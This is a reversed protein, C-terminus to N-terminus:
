EGDDVNGSSATIEEGDEEMDVRGAVGAVDGRERRRKQLWDGLEKWIREKEAPGMSAAVGSTSSAVFVRAGSWGEKDGGREQGDRRAASKTVGMREDEDQWGYKFEEKKIPKRHRVRWISEWISKGVICVAEPTYRKIKEVLIEVSDDM